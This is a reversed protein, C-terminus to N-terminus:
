LDKGFHIASTKAVSEQNNVLDLIAQDMRDTLEDVTKCHLNNFWNAKMVLWIREIPNLDPSYPPLYLPEFFHWNLTKKKHWSANDLVLVNKDRIPKICKAAENLFIQFTESDSYPVEIGFFEGSRPCVAGIISMRIHDGNHVVKPKSGKPAWRRRPRPEGDIGTEDAFWIDVREDQCLERLRERFLNRLGEDQKDPWPCPVQLSFGKEHFFRLVTSYSCEIRYKDQVYGHFAKATWFTRDVTEPHEIVAHFDQALLATIKKPAGPRKQAILGDIGCVNFARIWNRLSRPTVDLAHCVQDRSSGTLLMILGMCRRRTESSKATHFIRQLEQLSVNEPNPDEHRRAM